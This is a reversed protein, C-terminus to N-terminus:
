REVSFRVGLVLEKVKPHTTTLVIRGAEGQATDTHIMPQTGIPIEVMLPVSFLGDSLKKPAGLTASLEPPDTSAVELKVADPEAGRVFLNLTEQKGESSKVSGMLLMAQEESWALGRVSIDGVVRGTVPIELHEGDELNTELALWQNIRGIPLGPKATLTVVVGAKATPNPLDAPEVPVVNVEFKDRTTPDSLQPDSVVLNDQLMAMVFVEATKSEGAPITGFAFERPEIGKADTVEGHITLQITSNQPDNTYVPASQRFPGNGTIATWELTVTGTGGPPIPGKTVSGVTCKCTPQGVRLTLPAAGVNKFVFTHSKRRGQQMTGFNFDPEVAAVRPVSADTPLAFTDTAKEGPVHIALPDTAVQVYAVAAGVLIGVLAAVLIVPLIRM